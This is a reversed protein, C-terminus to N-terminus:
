SQFLSSMFDNDDIQHSINYYFARAKKVNKRDYPTKLIYKGRYYKVSWAEVINDLTKFIDDPERSQMKVTHDILIRGLEEYRSDLTLLKGLITMYMVFIDYQETFLFKVYISDIINENSITNTRTSFFIHFTEKIKDLYKKQVGATKHIDLHIELLKKPWSGPESSIFSSVHKKFHNVCKQCPLIFSTVLLLLYTLEVLDEDNEPNLKMIQNLSLNKIEALRYAFSKKLNAKNGLKSLGLYVFSILANWENKGWFIPNLSYM